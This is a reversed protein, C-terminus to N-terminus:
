ARAAAAALPKLQGTQHLYSEIDRAVEPTIHRYPGVRGVRDRFYVDIVRRLRQPCLYYGKSAQDDCFQQTTL